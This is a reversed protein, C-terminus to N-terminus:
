KFQKAAAAYADIRKKAAGQEAELDHQIEPIIAELFNLAIPQGGAFSLCNTSGFVVESVYSDFVADLEERIEKDADDLAALITDISESERLKEMKSVTEATRSKIKTLKEIIGFDTTRVRIVANEDNNISYEKYGKNINLNKM